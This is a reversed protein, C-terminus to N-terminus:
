SDKSNSTDSSEVPTSPRYIFEEEEEDDDVDDLTPKLEVFSEQSDALTDKAFDITGEALDPSSLPLESLKVQDVTQANIDEDDEGSSYDMPTGPQQDQSLTSTATSMNEKVREQQRSSLVQKDVYEIIFLQVNRDEDLALNLLIDDLPRSHRLSDDKTADLNSLAQRMEVDDCVTQFARAVTIRVNVVLDNALIDLRPLFFSHFDWASIGAELLAKSIQAFIMRNRFRESHAFEDVREMIHSLLELPVEASYDLDESSADEQDRQHNEDVAQKVIELLTPFCSVGTDRVSAFEDQCARLALPVIHEVVRSPDFLLAISKLQGALIDRLRWNNMVGDWVEALIPIYEDRSSPALAALFDSLHELVGQKVEDLDMLYLAFIQVLDHETREPGIIRAIEHLSYAFTRRVKIQYDKTLTLYTDKLHSDWLDVGATLAVAPFNFACIVTRDTELKFMQKSNTHAGLALFFDLLAMPVEGPQRTEEWGDPLFKTILEGIIEALMNRVNRSVDNMFLEVGDVALKTKLDTPLVGCLIPLTLAASRRVHWITDKSFHEYLPLLKDVVVNQNVVAALSGIASAAEKRVYFVNDKAMEEVIPLCQKICREEGLISALSAILSLSVMKALNIEGQDVDDNMQFVAKQASGTNQSDPSGVSSQSEDQSSNGTSSTKARDVVSLLGLIIGDFIEVDLLKQALLPPILDDNPSSEGNSISALQFAVSVICQQALSALNSNQDLLLEALMTSFTHVPIHYSTNEDRGEEMIKSQSIESTSASDSTFTTEVKMSDSSANHAPKIDHQMDVDEKENDEVAKSPSASSSQDQEIKYNVATGLPQTDQDIIPSANRYYYMIIKDLEVVFTERVSDEVDNGLAQLMPLAMHVSEQLSMTELSLPLERAVLLRHLIVSSKVFMTMREIPTLQNDIILEDDELEEPTMERTVVMPEAEDAEVDVYGDTGEMFTKQLHLAQQQELPIITAQASANLAPASQNEHSNSLNDQM